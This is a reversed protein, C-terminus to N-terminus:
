KFETGKERGKKRQLIEEEKKKMKDGSRKDRV